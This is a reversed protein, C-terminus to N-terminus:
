ANLIAAKTMAFKLANVAKVQNILLTLASCTAETSQKTGITPTVAPTNNKPSDKLVFM